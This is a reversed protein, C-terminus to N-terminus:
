PEAIKEGEAFSRHMRGCSDKQLNKVEQSDWSIKTQCACSFCKSLVCLPMRDELNKSAILFTLMLLCIM